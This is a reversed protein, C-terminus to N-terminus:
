RVPKGAPVPRRLLRLVVPDTSMQKLLTEGHELLKDAAKPDKLAGLSRIASVRVRSDVDTTAAKLLVDLAEKDDAAGLVRAANARVVAHVHTALLDRADRNANKAKLRALTNLADAVINPDTYALFKRVIEEGGAPRARLAATLALRITEKSQQGGKLLEAELTFLISQGLDKAKPDKANAAAIKGAAEVLRGRDVGGVDGPMQARATEGIARLIVDAGKVSEIEGVAFAAMARAKESADTKLLTALAPIAADNGIRGAALAARTRVDVNPSRMLGELTKDYRRADEAKLIQVQVNIPVQSFAHPSAALLLVLLLIKNM